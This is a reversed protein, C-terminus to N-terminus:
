SMAVLQDSDRVLECLEGCQPGAGIASHDLANGSVAQQREGSLAQGSPRTTWPTAVLQDSDSVLEWLEECRPGAGIASHNLANGSVAQQREGSLAQGSPRTTWPMVVSQKSDRVM